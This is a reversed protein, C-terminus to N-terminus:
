MIVGRLLLQRYVEATTACDCLADHARDYQIDFKTALYTLKVKSFPIPEAKMNARDNLYLAAVMTDRSHYDFLYNYMAPTLWQIMFARDFGYNQGLPLIKKPNGYKTVPLGLKSVWKELKDIAAFKDSGRNMITALNLKNIKMAERSVREPFEPKIEIYFPLIDQRPKIEADLPLIAIQIIEHYNPDLGTTEVDIACLHNGNWHFQTNHDKEFQKRTANPKLESM